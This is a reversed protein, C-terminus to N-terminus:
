AGLGQGDKDREEAVAENKGCRKRFSTELVSYLAGTMVQGTHHVTPNHCRTIQIDHRQQFCQLVANAKEAAADCQTSTNLLCDVQVGWIKNM